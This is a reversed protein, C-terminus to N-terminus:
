MRYRPELIKVFACFDPHEVVSLPMLGGAVFMVLADTIQLQRPDRPAYAKTASVFKQMSPQQPTPMPAVQSAAWEERHKRQLIFLLTM